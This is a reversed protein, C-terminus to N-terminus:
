FQCAIIAYAYIKNLTEGTETYLPCIEGASSIFLYPVHFGELEKQILEIEEGHNGGLLISRLICSFMLFSEGNGNSKIDRILANASEMVYDANVLGVSV